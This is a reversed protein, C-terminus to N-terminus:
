VIYKKFQFITSSRIQLIVGEVESKYYNWYIATEASYYGLIWELNQLIIYYPNNPKEFVRNAPDQFKKSSIAFKMRPLIDKRVVKCFMPM